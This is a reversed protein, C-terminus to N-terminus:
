KRRKAQEKKIWANFVPGERGIIDELKNGTLKCLALIAQRRRDNLCRALALKDKTFAVPASESCNRCRIYVEVLGCDPYTHEKGCAVCWYSIHKVM